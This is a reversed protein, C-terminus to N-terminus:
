LIFVEVKKNVNSKNKIIITFYQESYVNWTCYTVDKSKVEKCVNNKDKDYVILTIDKQNKAVSVYAKNNDKYKQYYTISNRKKITPFELRIDKTINHFSLTLLSLLTTIM